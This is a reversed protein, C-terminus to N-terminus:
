DHQAVSDGCSELLTCLRITVAELDRNGEGSGEERIHPSPFVNYAAIPLSKVTASSVPRRLSM